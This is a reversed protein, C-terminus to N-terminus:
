WVLKKATRLKPFVYAILSMKQKLINLSQDLHCVQLLINFFNKQKKYLQMETLQPLTDRYSCFVQLQCDVDSCVARLNKTDLLSVNVLEIRTLTM